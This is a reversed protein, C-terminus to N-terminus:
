KHKLADFMIVIRNGYTNRSEYDQEVEVETEPITFIGIAIRGLAFALFTGAILLLFAIILNSPRKM